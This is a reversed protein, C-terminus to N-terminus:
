NVSTNDKLKNEHPRRIIADEIQRFRIFLIETHGRCKM